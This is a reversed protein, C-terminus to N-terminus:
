SYCHERVKFSLSNVSSNRVTEGTWTLNVLHFYEIVQSSLYINGSLILYLEFPRKHKRQHPKHTNSKFELIFMQQRHPNEKIAQHWTCLNPSLGALRQEFFYWWHDTVVWLGRNETPGRQKRFLSHLNNLKFLKHRATAEYIVWLYIISSVLCVTARLTIAWILFPLM